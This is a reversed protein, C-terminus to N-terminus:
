CPPFRRGFRRDRGRARAQRGAFPSAAPSFRQARLASIDRSHLDRPKRCNKRAIFDHYFTPLPSQYPASNSVGDPGPPWTGRGGPPMRVVLPAVKTSGANPSKEPHVACGALAGFSLLVLTRILCHPTPLARPLSTRCDAVHKECVVRRRMAVNQRTCRSRM